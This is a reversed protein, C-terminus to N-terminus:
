CHATLYYLLPTLAYNFDSQTPNATKLCHWIRITWVLFNTSNKPVRFPNM